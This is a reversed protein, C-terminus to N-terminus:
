TESQCSSNEITELREEVKDIDQKEIGIAVNQADSELILEDLKLHLALDGKRQSVLLFGAMSIAFVSLAMTFVDTPLTLGAILMLIHVSFFGIPKSLFDSVIDFIRNM